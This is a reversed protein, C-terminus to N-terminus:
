LKVATKKTVVILDVVHRIFYNPNGYAIAALYKICCERVSTPLHELKTQVIFNLVLQHEHALFEDKFCQTLDLVGENIKITYQYGLSDLVQTISPTFNVNRSNQHFWFRDFLENLPDKHANIILM